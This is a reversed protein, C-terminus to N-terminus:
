GNSVVAVYKKEIAKVVRHSYMQKEEAHKAFRAEAETPSMANVLYTEKIVKETVEGTRPNEKEVVFEVQVEYWEFIYKM